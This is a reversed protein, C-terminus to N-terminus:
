DRNNAKAPMSYSAAVDVAVVQEGFSREAAPQV